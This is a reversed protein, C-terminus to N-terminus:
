FSLQAHVNHLFHMVRGHCSMTNLFCPLQQPLSEIPKFHFFVYFVINVRAYFALTCLFFNPNNLGKGIGDPGNSFTEISKIVHKMSHSPVFAMKTTTFLNEFNIFNLGVSVFAMIARIAFKNKSM